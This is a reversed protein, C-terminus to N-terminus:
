KRSRYSSAIIIKKHCHHSYFFRSRGQHSDLKSICAFIPFSRPGRRDLANTKGRIIELKRWRFSLQLDMFSFIASWTFYRVPIAAFITSRIIDNRYWRGQKLCIRYQKYIQENSRRLMSSNQHLHFAYLLLCQRRRGRPLRIFVRGM